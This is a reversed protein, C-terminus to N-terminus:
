MAHVGSGIRLLLGPGGIKLLLMYNRSKRYDAKVAKEPKSLAKATKSLAITQRSIGKGQGV